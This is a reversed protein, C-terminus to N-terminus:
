REKPMLTPYFIPHAPRDCPISLQMKSTGTLATKKSYGNRHNAPGSAEREDELPEDLETSLIRESLAKKLDDLM